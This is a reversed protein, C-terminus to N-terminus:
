KSAERAFTVLDRALNCNKIGERQWEVTSQRRNIGVRHLSRALRVIAKTDGPRISFDHLISEITQM